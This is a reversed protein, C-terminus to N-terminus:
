EVPAPEDARALAFVRLAGGRLVGAVDVRVSEHMCEMVEDLLEDSFSWRVDPKGTDRLIFTHRDVDAEGIRGEQKVIRDTSLDRIAEHVRKRSRRTLRTPAGEGIWKGGVTMEVIPGTSPPTLLLVARLIAARELGTAALAASDSAAWALGKRLMAAAAKVEPQGFLDDKPSGFDVEFSAFKFRNVPLDYRDRHWDSPRGAGTGETVHDLLAKFSKRTADAVFAVVSAPISGSVITPGIARTSLAPALEYSLLTEPTPLHGPLDSETVTWVHAIRGGTRLALWMWSSTLAERVGLSGAELDAVIRPSTPALVLWEGEANDDAQYALLSGVAAIATFVIPAEAEYLVRELEFGDLTALPLEQTTRKKLM